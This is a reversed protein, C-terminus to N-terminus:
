KALVTVPHFKQKKLYHLLDPFVSQLWGKKPPLVTFSLIQVRGVPTELYVGPVSPLCFM